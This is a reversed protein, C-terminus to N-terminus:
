SPAGGTGRLYSTALVNGSGERIVVAGMSPGAYRPTFTVDVTCTTAATYTKAACLNTSTDPTTPTFDLNPAGQTVVDVSGITTDAALTFSLTATRSCPAPSMTGAPCVNAMGLNVAVHLPTVPLTAATAGAAALFGCAVLRSLWIQNTFYRRGELM